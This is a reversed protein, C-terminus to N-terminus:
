LVDAPAQQGARSRLVAAGTNRPSLVATDVAGPLGMAQPSSAAAQIAADSEAVPEPGSTWAAAPVMVPVPGLGVARSRSVNGAAVRSSSSRGSGLRWAVTAAYWTNILGLALQAPVAKM